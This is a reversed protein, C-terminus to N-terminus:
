EITFVTKIFIVGMFVFSRHHTCDIITGRNLKFGAAYETSRIMKIKDNNINIELDPLLASFVFYFSSHSRLSWLNAKAYTTMRGVGFGDDDRM